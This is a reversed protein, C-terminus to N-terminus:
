VKGTATKLKVDVRMIHQQIWSSATGHLKTIFAKSAGQSKFEAKLKGFADLFQAHARKNDEHAPCRYRDMCQEEFKFHTTVYNELFGLLRDIDGAHLQEAHMYTELKNIHDILVKHQTDVLPVGTEFQSSWEIM